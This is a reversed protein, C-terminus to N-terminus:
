FSDELAEDHCCLDSSFHTTKPTAGIIEEFILHCRRVWVHRSLPRCPTATFVLAPAFRRQELQGDQPAGMRSHLRSAETSTIGDM